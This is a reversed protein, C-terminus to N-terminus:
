FVLAYGSEATNADQSWILLRFFANFFVTCVVQLKEVPSDSQCGQEKQVNVDRVTLINAAAAMAAAVEENGGEVIDPHSHLVSCQSFRLAQSGFAFSTRCTQISM